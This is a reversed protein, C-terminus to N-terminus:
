KHYPQGASITAARYLSELLIVMALDHPYTLKGFSWTRDTRAFLEAPLGEPGGIIFCVERGDMARRELFHALEASSFEPGEIVLAVSYSNGIASGLTTANNHKDAIHSVRIQHYHGLRKWYEEWGLKAYNLKPAGITIIHLKM